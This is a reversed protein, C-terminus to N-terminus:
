RCCDFDNAAHHLRTLTISREATKAVKPRRKLEAEWNFDQVDDMAAVLTVTMPKDFRAVFMGPKLAFVSLTRPAGPSGGSITARYM